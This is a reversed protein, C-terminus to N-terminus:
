LHAQGNQKQQRLNDEKELIDGMRRNACPFLFVPAVM